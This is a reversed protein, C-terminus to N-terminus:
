AAMRAFKRVPKLRILRQGEAEGDNGWALDAPCRFVPECGAESRKALWPGRIELKALEAAGAGRFAEDLNHHGRMKELDAGLAHLVATRLCGL